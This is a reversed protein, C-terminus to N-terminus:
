HGRPEPGLSCAAAPVPKFLRLLRRSCALVWSLDECVGGLGMDSGPFLSLNSGSSFDGGGGGLCSGWYGPWLGQPWWGMRLVLGPWASSKGM